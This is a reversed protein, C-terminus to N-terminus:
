KKLCLQGMEVNFSSLNLQTVIKPYEEAIRPFIQSFSQFVSANGESLKQDFGNEILVVTECFYFILASVRLCIGYRQMDSYKNVANNNYKRLEIRLERNGYM